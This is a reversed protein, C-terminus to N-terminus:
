HMKSLQFGPLFPFTSKRSTKSCSSIPNAKKSLSEPPPAMHSHSGRSGSRAVALLLADDVASLSLSRKVEMMLDEKQKKLTKIPDPQIMTRRKSLTPRTFCRQSKDTKKEHKEEPSPITPESYNSEKSSSFEEEQVTELQELDTSSKKLGLRGLKM